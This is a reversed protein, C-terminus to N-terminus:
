YYSPSYRSGPAEPVESLSVYTKFGMDPGGPFGGLLGLYCLQGDQSWPGPLRPEPFRSATCCRASVSLEGEQHTKLVHAYVNLTTTM